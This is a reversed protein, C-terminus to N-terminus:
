RRRWEGDRYRCVKACIDIGILELRCVAWYLDSASMVNLVVKFRIQCASFM